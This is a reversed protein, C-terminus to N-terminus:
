AKTGQDHHTGQANEEERSISAGIAAGAFEFLDETPVSITTGDPAMISVTEASQKGYFFKTGKKAEYRYYKM